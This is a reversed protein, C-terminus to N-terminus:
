LRRRAAAMASLVLTATPMTKTVPGPGVWGPEVVGADETTEGSAIRAFAGYM